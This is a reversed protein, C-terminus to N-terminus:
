VALTPPAGKLPCSNPALLFPIIIIDFILIIDLIFIPIILVITM